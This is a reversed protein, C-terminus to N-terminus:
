IVPLYSAIHINPHVMIGSKELKLSRMKKRHLFSRFLAYSFFFISKPPRKVGEAPPRTKCLFNVSFVFFIMLFEFFRWKDDTKATNKTDSDIESM